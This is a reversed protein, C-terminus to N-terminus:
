QVFCGGDDAEGKKRQVHRLQENWLRAIKLFVENIGQRTVASTEIFKARYKDAIAKADAGTVQREEALDCKNGAFVFNLPGKKMSRIREGLEDALGLSKFETVSYVILFLDGNGMSLDRLAVFDEQGAADTIEVPLTEGNGLNIDAKYHAELTPTYDEIFTDRVLQVIICTKGVRGDGVVVLRPVTM